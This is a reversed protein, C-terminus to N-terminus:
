FVIPFCIFFHSFATLREHERDREKVVNEGKKTMKDREAMEPPM